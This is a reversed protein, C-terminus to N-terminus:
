KLKAADAITGLIGKGKRTTRKTTRKPKVGLSSVGIIGKLVDGIIGKGKKPRGRRRKAGEGTLEPM